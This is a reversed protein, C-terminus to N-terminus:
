NGRKEKSGNKSGNSSGDSGQAAQEVIYKTMPTDALFSAGKGAIRGLLQKGSQDVTTVSRLDLVLPGSPSELWMREVEEVWPGALKGELKITTTGSSCNKTIRLLDARQKESDATTYLLRKGL